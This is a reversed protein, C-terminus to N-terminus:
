NDSIRPAFMLFIQVNSVATERLASPAAIEPGSRSCSVNDLIKLAFATLLWWFNENFRQLQDFRRLELNQNM